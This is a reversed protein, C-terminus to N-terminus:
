DEGVVVGLEVSRSVYALAMRGSVSTVTGVDKGEVLIADGREVSGLEDLAVIRLSQPASSGRSDMREVLEQGPYCGKTFSAVRRVIGTAAPITEGPRIESGMAPWGSRVRLDEIERVDGRRLDGPLSALVEIVDALVRDTRQVSDPDSTETTGSSPTRPTGPDILVDFATGDAWWSDVVIAPEFVTGNGSNGSSGSIVVGRLSEQLLDRISLTGESNTPPVATPGIDRLEIVTMSGVTFEAKVRIKFRQLRQILQGFDDEDADTDVVYTDVGGDDEKVPALRTVRVLATVKGTPELVFSQCSGGPALGVIDNSLQSHLYSGADVGHVWLTRREVVDWVFAQGGADDSRDTADLGEPM